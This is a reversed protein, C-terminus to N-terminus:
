LNHRQRAYLPNTPHLGRPWGEFSKVPYTMVGLGWPRKFSGRNLEKGIEYVTM